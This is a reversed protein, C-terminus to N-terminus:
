ITKQSGLFGQFAEAERPKQMQHSSKSFVIVRNLSRQKLGQTFRRLLTFEKIQWM